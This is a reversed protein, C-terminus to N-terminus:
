LGQGEFGQVRVRFRSCKFGFGSVKSGLVSFVFSLVGLGWCGQGLGEWSSGSATLMFCQDRFSDRLRLRRAKFRFDDVRFVFGQVQIRKDRPHLSGLDSIGFSM